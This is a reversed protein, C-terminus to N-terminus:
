IDSDLIGEYDYLYMFAISTNTQLKLKWRLRHFNKTECYQWLHHLIIYDELLM